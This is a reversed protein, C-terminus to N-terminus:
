GAKQHPGSWTQNFRRSHPNRCQPFIVPNHLPLLSVRQCLTQRTKVAIAFKINQYREEVCMCQHGPSYQQLSCDFTKKKNRQAHRTWPPRRTGSLCPPGPRRYQHARGRDRCGVGCGAKFGMQAPGTHRVRYIADMVQPREAEAYRSGLSRRGALWCALWLYSSTDWRLSVSTEGAWNAESEHEPGPGAPSPGGPVAPLVM